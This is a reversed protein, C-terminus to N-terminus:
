HSPLEVGQPAVSSMGWVGKEESSFPAPLLDNDTRTGEREL